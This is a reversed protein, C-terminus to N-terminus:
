ERVPKRFFWTAGAAALLLIGVPILWMIGSGTVPVVPEASHWLLLSQINNNAWISDVIRHVDTIGNVQTEGLIKISYQGDTITNGLIEFNGGNAGYAWIGETNAPAQITNNLFSATNIGADVGIAAHTLTSNKVTNNNGAFFIAPHGNDTLNNEISMNELVNGKGLVKIGSATDMNVIKMDKILVNNGDITIYDNGGGHVDVTLNGGLINIDSKNIVLLDDGSDITLEHDALNLTSGQIAHYTGIGDIAEQVSPMNFTDIYTPVEDTVATDTLGSDGGTWVVKVEAKAPVQYFSGQWPTVIDWYGGDNEYWNADENYLIFPATMLHAMADTGDDHAFELEYLTKDEEDLLSVNISYVTNIDVAEDFSFEVMYGGYSNEAAFTDIELAKSSVGDDAAAIGLGGFTLSFIMVFAFMCVLSKKM